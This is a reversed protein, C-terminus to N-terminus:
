YSSHFAITRKIGYVVRFCTFFVPNSCQHGLEQLTSNVLFLDDQDAVLMYVLKKAKNM